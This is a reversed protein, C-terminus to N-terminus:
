FQRAGARWVKRVRTSCIALTVRSAALNHPVYRWNRAGFDSGNSSLVHAQRPSAGYRTMSQPLTAATGIGAGVGANGVPAYAGTLLRQQGSKSVVADTFSSYEDPRPGLETKRLSTLASIGISGVLGNRGGSTPGIVLASNSKQDTM